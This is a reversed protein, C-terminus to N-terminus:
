IYLNPIERRWGPLSLVISEIHDCHPSPQSYHLPNLFKVNFLMHKCTMRGDIEM